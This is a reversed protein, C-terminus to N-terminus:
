QSNHDDNVANTSFGRAASKVRSWLGSVVGAPQAETTTSGSASAALIQSVSVNSSLDDKKSSPISAGLATIQIPNLDPHTRLNGLGSSSLPSLTDQTGQM